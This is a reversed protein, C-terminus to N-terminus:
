QTPVLQTQHSTNAAVTALYDRSAAANSAVTANYQNQSMLLQKIENLRALQHDQARGRTLLRSQQAHLEPTQSAAM